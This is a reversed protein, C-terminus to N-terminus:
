RTQDNVRDRKKTVIKDCAALVGPLVFLILLTACLSGISITKVISTVTPNEFMGGVIGTVTVLILGSTMITHISGAYATKLADKVNAAKRAECYYNTLVIGYDVTAGMLICEVILLALYYMSGSMIGTITVTIYVGCQVLLVLILPISISKFTFAVILFIAFATLLTIFLLENDFTKQMEYNMASNGVLYYNGSLNNNGYEELKAFFATAETGEDPYSSTIILRSYKDTVLQQKGEDLSGEADLLKQRMDADIVSEFRPDKLVDNIMYNFLTELTMTWTPDANESSEAYLYMLEVMSSELEDTLGGLLTGMEAATYAEGSIVADVMTRASSLMDTTDADIKDAYESNSIVDDIIFDIFGKVSLTWGSTDGHRSTYLLYLQQAQEKSMGMIGSIQDATYSTGNVSGNIIAQATSLSNIQESGMMSGLMDSNNMLFNIITHMSLSWNNIQSESAHVTYLMKLMDGDMGLLNALESYTFKTGNVSAKIMKQMMQLQGIRAADMYSNMVSDALFFDVAEEMSMTKGSIDSGYYLRFVIQILDNEMGFTQALTQADLPTGSVALQVLGNLQGLQANDPALQLASNLFDPLTMSTASQYAFIANVQTEEMGTIGALTAADLKQGSVALQILKDMTQLQTKTAEDFSSGFMPDNILNSNLFGTFQALTMTKDSVDQANHLVFITKVLSEDIGLMSALEATSHQKQLAAKDTYAALTKIQEMTDKDFYSSFQPHNAIDNQLFDVFAPLTMTGPDYGDSLAYYYTFLLKTTDADMGLLSAIGTYTYPTNMKKADTFTALQEMKSLTAADFMSSYDSDKAVENIAFDAFTALTMSGTSAGGKDIQYLLFLDEINGVDMDFFDALEEANMPTTLAEADAFKNLMDVNKKMDDDIFDSFTEDNMVTDSIFSLFEAATMTGTKGDKYYDYYLMDIVGSNLSIDEGMNGLENSLEGSTYPKGLITGYGMISNVKEDKELEAILENVKDEDQNEYVMVLTNSKPFVDAIVDDEVLTYAIGTQQQLIYAGIFLIVFLGTMVYRLKHSFKAAWNMPIHLSKKATKQILKDCALIIGPLMTLVCIMSIFVGKAMVIGLNAGIKFSMFVLMLLGVVTTLSSSAVSSFANTLANKMAQKSDPELEKEQRYRNMLVISYDMSLVLQLIASISNTVSAVSGLIMNTGSNIVVAVGIVVLFLLPEIWSGCMVFLIILLVALATAIIIFPLHPLSTDDNKWVMTYDAFESDLADQISLEEDSGYECSLNLVYLTHNDKNYDSSEADYDVSDVHEIESLKTLVEEKQASTLDDFMVRITNSTEMEPFEEAMIDIGAKMNSDDPLYKTMDENIEVFQSCVMSVVALILMIVLILTRKNVIFNSLKKIM